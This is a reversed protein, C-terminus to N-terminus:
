GLAEEGLLDKLLEKAINLRAADVSVSRVFQKLCMDRLQQRYEEVTQTKPADVAPQNEKLGKSVIKKRKPKTQEEAPKGQHWEFGDPNLKAEATNTGTEELKTDTKDTIPESEDSKIVTEDMKQLNEESLLNEKKLTEALKEVTKMVSPEEKKVPVKTIEEGFPTTQTTRSLAANIDGITCQLVKALKEKTVEAMRFHVGNKINHQTQGGIGANTLASYGLGLEAMRRNMFESLTEQQTM